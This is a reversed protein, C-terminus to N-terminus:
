PFPPPAETSPSTTRGTVPANFTESQGFTIPNASDQVTVTSGHRTSRSPLRLHDRDHLRHTDTPTFTMSLRAPRRHPDHGRCPQLRLNGPLAAATVGTAAADLQTASLPTSTYIAAPTPWALTPTAQTIQLSTGLTYQNTSGTPTYTVQVEYTGVPYVQGVTIAASSGIFTYVFTGTGPLAM